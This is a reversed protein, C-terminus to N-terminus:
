YSVQFSTGVVGNAAVKCGLNNCTLPSDRTAHVLYIPKGRILPLDFPVKATTKPRKKATTKRKRKTTKRRKATTKRKRRTTLKKQRPELRHNVLPSSASTSPPRLRVFLAGSDKLAKPADALHEIPIVTDEETREVHQGRVRRLFSCAAHRGDHLANWAGYYLRTGFGRLGKGYVMGNYQNLLVKNKEVREAVPDFAGSAILERRKLARQRELAEKSNGEGDRKALRIKHEEDIVSKVRERAERRSFGDPVFASSFDPEPPAVSLAPEQDGRTVPVSVLASILWLFVVIRM